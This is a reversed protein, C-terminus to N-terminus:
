RKETPSLPSRGGRLFSLAEKTNDISLGLSVGTPSTRDYLYIHIQSNRERSHSVTSLDLARLKTLAAQYYGCTACEIEDGVSTIRDEAKHADRTLVYFTSGNGCADCYGRKKESGQDYQAKCKACEVVHPKLVVEASHGCDLKAYAWHSRSWDQRFGEQISTIRAM